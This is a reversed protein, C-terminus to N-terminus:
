KSCSLLYSMLLVILFVTSAATARVMVRPSVAQPPPPLPLPSLEAAEVAEPPSFPKEKVPGRDGRFARFLDLRERRKTFMNKEMM